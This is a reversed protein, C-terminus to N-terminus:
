RYGGTTSGYGGTTSGYGGTTGGTGTTTSGTSTGTTTSGTGTSTGTTSGSGTTGTTSGTTTGPRTPTFDGTFVEFSNNTGTGVQTSRGAAVSVNRAVVQSTPVGNLFSTLVVNYTGPPVNTVVINQVAQAPDIRQFTSPLVLQNNSDLISVAYEDAAAFQATQALVNTRDFSVQLTGNRNANILGPSNRIDNDNSDGCGVVVLGVLAFLFFFARGLGAFNNM